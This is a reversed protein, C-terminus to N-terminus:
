QQAKFYRHRTRKDVQLIPLFFGFKLSKITNKLILCPTKQMVGIIHQKGVATARYEVGM